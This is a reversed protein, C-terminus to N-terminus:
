ATGDTDDLLKMLRSLQRATLELGGELAEELIDRDRGGLKPRLIGAWLGRVEPFSVSHISEPSISSRVGPSSRPGSTPM